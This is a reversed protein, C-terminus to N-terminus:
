EMGPPHMVWWAFLALLALSVMWWLVAVFARKRRHRSSTRPFGQGAM